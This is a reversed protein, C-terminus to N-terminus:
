CGPTRNGTESCCARGFVVTSPLMWVDETTYHDTYSSTLKMSSSKARSGPEIGPPLSKLTAQRKKSSSWSSSTM